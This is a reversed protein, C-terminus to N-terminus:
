KKVKILRRYYELMNKDQNVLIEFFSTLTINGKILYKHECTNFRFDNKCHSLAFAPVRKLGFYDFGWPHIHISVDKSSIGNDRLYRLFSYVGMPNSEQEVLYGDPVKLLNFTLIHRKKNKDYFTFNDERTSKIKGYDIIQKSDANDNLAYEWKGNEQVTLKGFRSSTIVKLFGDQKFGVQKATGTKTNDYYSPYGNLFIKAQLNDKTNLKKFEKLFDKISNVNVNTSIFYFLTFLHEINKTNRVEKKYISNVLDQLGQTQSSEGLLNITEIFNDYLAKETDIEKIKKGTDAKSPNQLNKFTESKLFTNAYKNNNVIEKMSAKDAILLTFSFLLIYLLKNNLKFENYVYICM